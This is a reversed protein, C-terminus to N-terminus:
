HPRLTGPWRSWDAHIDSRITAPLDFWLNYGEESNALPIRRAWARGEAELLKRTLPSPTANDRLWARWAGDRLTDRSGAGRIQRRGAALEVRNNDLTNMPADIGDRQFTALHLMAIGDAHRMVPDLVAGARREHDCRQRVTAWDIGGNKWGVLAISPSQPLFGDAFVEVTGFVEAFSALISEFEAAALQHGPLWQCFLGGDALAAHMASFHEVSFLRGEGPGWPQFLDGAIVDYRGRCAAFWTRGDEVIVRARPDNFLPANLDAFHRRAAEVVLPSIEVADASEVATHHLSAAPTNGTAVGLFGTRKPAPHLLLPLHAQREQSWRASTSGLIYQNSLLIGRGMAPHEVVAVVGERGALIELTEFGVHPNVVPLGSLRPTAIWACAVITALALGSALHSRSRLAVAVAALAYGCAVWGFAAHLGTNPLLLRYAFEAGVLAGLGNWALLWGWARARCGSHTREAHLITIPFILGAAVMAAGFSLTVLLTLKVVFGLASSAKILAPVGEALQHFVWPSIVLLLASAMLSAILLRTPDLRRIWPLAVIAAAFALALIVLALMAAPGYFSIPVVLGLLTVLLVEVALVAMGSFFALAHCAHRNLTAIPPEHAAQSDAAPLIGAGHLCSEGRGLWWCGAAVAVNVATAALMAGLLGFAHIAFGAALALGVVGGLTNSAYLALTRGGVDGSHGRALERAVVPVFFGMCFSPPLLCVLSVALKVWGGWAGVLADPGLAPWIWGTWWPLLAIPLALLGIALEMGALFRWPNRLPGGYGTGGAGARGVGGGIGIPSGSAGGVHGTGGAGTRGLMLAAVMSGLALGLFFVGFVRAAAEHSAGLLDILRRTWLLQHALAAVGGAFAVLLAAPFVPFGRRAETTM